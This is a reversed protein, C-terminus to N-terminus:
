DPNKALWAEEDKKSTATGHIELTMYEGYDEATLQKAENETSAEVVDWFRIYGNKDAGEGPEYLFGHIKFKPM